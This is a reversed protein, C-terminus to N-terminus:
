TPPVWMEDPKRRVWVLRATEIAYAEAKDGYAEKYADLVIRWCDRSSKVGDLLRKARAPGIGEIGPVNDTSDGSLVQGYFALMGAKPTVTVEEDKTWDYHVGPIQLLDKDFSAGVVEGSKWKSMDIGIADDAEQGEAIQANWKNVLYERLAKHHKPRAAADRNGKYKARTAVRDRFNGVSPSLHVRITDWDYRNFVKDLSLQLLHIANEVPEYEKRSWINGGNEHAAAEKATDYPFYDGNGEVLYKTKEAAFGCRYIFADGDISLIVGV